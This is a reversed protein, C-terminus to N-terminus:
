DAETVALRQQSIEAWAWIPLSADQKWWVEAGPFLKHADDPETPAASAEAMRLSGSTSINQFVYTKGNELSLAATLNTPPWSGVAVTQTAM